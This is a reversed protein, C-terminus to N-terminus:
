FNFSDLVVLLLCIASTTFWVDYMYVEQKCPMVLINVISLVDAFCVLLKIMCIVMILFDVNMFNKPNVM